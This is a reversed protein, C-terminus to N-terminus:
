KPESKQSLEMSIIIDMNSLRSIEGTTAEATFINKIVSQVEAGTGALEAKVDDTIDEYCKGIIGIRSNEENASLEKLKAKLPADLKDENIEM